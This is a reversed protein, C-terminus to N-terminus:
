LFDVKLIKDQKISVKEVAYRMFASRSEFGQLDKQTDADKWFKPSGSILVRKVKEKPM